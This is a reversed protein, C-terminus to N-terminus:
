ELDYCAMEIHNRVFVRNGVMAPYNWTKEGKLAKVKGLERFAKPDALAIALDGNEALIVLKEGALLLKEVQQQAELHIAIFESESIYAGNLGYGQAHAMDDISVLKYGMKHNIEEAMTTKGSFPIGTIIELRIKQIKTINM